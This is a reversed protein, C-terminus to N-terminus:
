LIYNNCLDQLQPPTNIVLIDYLHVTIYSAEIGHGKNLIAQFGKYCYNCVHTTAVVFMHIHYQQKL